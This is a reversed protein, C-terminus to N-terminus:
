LTSTPTSVVSQTLTQNDKMELTQYLVRYRDVVIDKLGPFIHM